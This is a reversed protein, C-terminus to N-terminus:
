DEDPRGELPDPPELPPYRCFEAKLELLDLELGSLADRAASVRGEARAVIERLLKLAPDDPPNM